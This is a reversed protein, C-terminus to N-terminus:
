SNIWLNNMQDNIDRDVHVYTKMFEKTTHGMRAAAWPYSMGPTNGLKTAITHRLSYMSWQGEPKIGVEEGIKKLMENLSTQTVPYGASSKQFDNLNLFIFNNFNSIGNEKLFKSQYKEFKDLTSKLEFSIPLTIRKEGVKRANLHGNLSKTYDNWSNSLEFVYNNKQKQISGWTLAQLEQPRMGTELDVWIALKSVCSSFESFDINKKLYNKIQKIELNDLVYRPVRLAKESNKFFVDLARPPVPNKPYLTGVMLELYSKLHTLRRAIVSNRSVTVHHDEVFKRAFSGIIYTTMDKMKIHSFYQKFIRSSYEWDKYTKKEWRGKAYEEEIFREFCVPFLEEATAYDYGSEYKHWLSREIEQAKKLSRAYEVPIKVVKGTIKDKPQIRIRYENKHKGSEIKKIAMKM